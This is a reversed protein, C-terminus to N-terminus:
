DVGLGKKLQGAERKQKEESNRLTLTPTRDRLLLTFRFLEEMVDIVRERFDSPKMRGADDFEELLILQPIDSVRGSESDAVGSRRCIIRM